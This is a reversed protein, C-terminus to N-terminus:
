GREKRICVNEYERMTNSVWKELTYCEEFEQRQAARMRNLRETNQLLSVVADAMLRPSNWPVLAGLDKEQLLEETVPIHSTVIPLGCSMSELIVNPFYSLGVSSTYPILFLDHRTMEDHVDVKGKIVAADAVGYRRLRKELAEKSGRDSVAFTVTFDLRDKLAAMCRVIDSVGKAATLHGIYLLRFPGPGIARVDEGSPPTVLGNAIRAVSGEAALPLLQQEQHRSAVIVRSFARIGTRYLPKLLSTNFVLHHSLGAVLDFRLSLLLSGTERRELFPQWVTAIVPQTMAAPVDRLLFLELTFGLHLHVVDFDENAQALLYTKMADINKAHSATSGYVQKPSFSVLRFSQRSEPLPGPVALTVDHERALAGALEVLNKSIAEQLDAKFTSTALLIRM